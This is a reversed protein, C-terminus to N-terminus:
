KKAKLMRIVRAATVAGVAHRENHMKDAAEEAARACEEIVQDRFDAQAKQFQEETWDSLSQEAM